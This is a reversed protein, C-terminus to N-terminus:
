KNNSYISSSCGINPAFKMLPFTRAWGFSLQTPSNFNLNFKLCPPAMSYPWAMIFAVLRPINDTKKKHM